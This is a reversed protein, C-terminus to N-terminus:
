RRFRKRLRPREDSGAKDEEGEGQPKLRAQRRKRLMELRKQREEPPLSMFKQFRQRIKERREPSLRQFAQFNRLIRAKAEPSLTQFRKFREALAQRREPTLGQWRRYNERLRQRDTESMENWRKQAPSSDDALAPQVLTFLTLILLFTQKIM